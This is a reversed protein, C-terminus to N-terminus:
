INDYSQSRKPRLLSKTLETKALSSSTPSNQQQNKVIQLATDSSAISYKNYLDKVKSNRLETSRLKTTKMQNLYFKRAKSYSCYIAIMVIISNIFISMLIIETSGQNKSDCGNVNNVCDPITKSPRTPDSRTECRSGEWGDM